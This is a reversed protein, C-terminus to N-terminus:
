RKGTEWKVTKWDFRTEWKVTKWDGMEGNELFFFVPPRASRLGMEWFQDRSLGHRNSVGAVLNKLKKPSSATIM